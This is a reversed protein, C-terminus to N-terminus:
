VLRWYALVGVLVIMGLSTSSGVIWLWVNPGERHQGAPLKDTSRSCSDSARVKREDHGATEGIAKGVRRGAESDVSYDPMSVTMAARLDARLIDQEITM